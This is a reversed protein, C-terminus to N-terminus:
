NSRSFEIEQVTGQGDLRVTVAWTDGGEGALVRTYVALGEEEVLAESLLRPSLVRPDSGLAGEAASRFAAEDGWRAQAGPPLLDWAQAWQGAELLSTLERGRARPEPAAAVPEPGAPPDAPADMAQGNLAEVPDPLPEQAAPLASQRGVVGADM